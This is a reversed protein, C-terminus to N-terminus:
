NGKGLAESIKSGFSGRQFSQARNGRFALVVMEIDNNSVPAHHDCMVLNYVNNSIHFCDIDKFQGKEVGALGDSVSKYLDGLGLAHGFEHKSVHRIEEYETFEGRESQIFILKRSRVSWRKMGVSAFSRNSRLLSVAKNSKSYLKEAMDATNKALDDTLPIVTVNDFLRKEFTLEICVTLKQGGFVEYEGEWDKIGSIVAQLLRDYDAVEDGLEVLQINASLTLVNKGGIFELRADIPTLLGKRDIRIVKGNFDTLPHPECDQRLRSAIEEEYAEAFYRNLFARAPLYGRKESNSIYALGFAKPDGGSIGLLGDLVLRGILYEAEGDGAKQARILLQLGEKKEESTNEAGFFLRKGMERMGEPSLRIVYENKRESNETNEM